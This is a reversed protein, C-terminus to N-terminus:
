DPSVQVITVGKEEIANLADHDAYIDTILIDIQSLDSTFFNAVHGIKRYDAVLIVLQNANEVMVRNVKAEHVNETRVGSEASVGSCGLIAIDSSIHSLAEITLDGVLAEKPYRIEGGPLIITTNPNMNKPSAKLNNTVITLPTEKLFNVAQLATSSSNIFLTMNDKIYSAAKKSLAVKINELNQNETLGEFNPKDILSAGGHVRVIVGMEEMIMLDRRITMPSVQLLEALENVSVVSSLNRELLHIIEERRKKITLSTNKM